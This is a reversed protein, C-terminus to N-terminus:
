DPHRRNVFPPSAGFQVHRPVRAAGNDSAVRADVEIEAEGTPAQVATVASVVAIDVAVVSITVRM